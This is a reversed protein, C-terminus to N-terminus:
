DRTINPKGPQPYFRNDRIRTNECFEPNFGKELDRDAELHPSFFVNNEIRIDHNLVKSVTNFPCQFPPWTSAFDFVNDRIVINGAAWAEAGVGYRRLGFHVANGRSSRTVMRNNEVLANSCRFMLRFGNLFENRMVLAGHNQVSQNVFYDAVEGSKLGTLTRVEALDLGSVTIVALLQQDVKRLEASKVLLRQKIRYDTGDLLLLRDGTRFTGLVQSKSRNILIEGERAEWLPTSVSLFNFFDDGNQRITTDHLWPGIRNGTAFIGDANTATIRPSGPKPIIRCHGIEILDNMEPNIAVSPGSYIDVGTAGCNRNASFKLPSYLQRWRGYFVIRDGQSVVSADREPEPLPTPFAVRFQNEGTQSVDKVMYYTSAQSHLKVGFEASPQFLRIVQFNTALHSATPPSFGPEIEFEISSSSLIRTIRGQSFPLHRYDISLDRVFTHLSDEIQIGAINNQGLLIETQDSGAGTLTLNKAGSIVLHAVKSASIDREHVDDGHTSGRFQPLPVRRPDADALFYRGPPLLVRSWRTKRAEDIARRIAPADNAVGDGVAGFDKVNFDQRVFGTRHKEAEQAATIVREVNHTLLAADRLLEVESHHFTDSSENRSKINSAIQELLIEQGRLWDPLYLDIHSLREVRQRADRLLLQAHEPQNEIATAAPSGTALGIIAAALCPLFFNIVITPSHM